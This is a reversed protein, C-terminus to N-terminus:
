DEAHPKRFGLNDRFAEAGAIGTEMENWFEMSEALESINQKRYDKLWDVVDDVQQLFKKEDIGFNATTLILKGIEHDAYQLTKTIAEVNAFEILGSSERERLVAIHSDGGCGDVHEKAQFLIYAALVVCQHATLSPDYMRSALFDGMYYGAGSSRFGEVKNVLPGDASCARKQEVRSGTFSLLTPCLELNSSRGSSRIFIKSRQKLLPAHRM